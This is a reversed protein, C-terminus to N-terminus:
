TVENKWRALGVAVCEDLWKEFRRNVNEAPEAYTFEFPEAALPVVEGIITRGDDDPRKTYTMPACCLVGSSGHGMEHFSFLLETRVETELALASWARFGSMNAYYGLQRACQVIQHYNYHANADGSAAGYAFAKYAQDVTKVTDSIDHALDQLRSKATFQLATAVQLSQSILDNKEERRKELAIKLGDLIGQIRSSERLTEEGVSLAERIARRQLNGFMAILSSLDGDDATRLAAIYSPKDSRTIVLPLWRARLLVLTALCRAVRGNGDAFPHVLSFRHHLWAAEVLPSVLAKEHQFHFRLLSDMESEVQIPPCFEFFFGDPGEVNNPMMKWRGRPLEARVYRGLTDRAEHTQQHETLVQHLELIYSKTLQRQHSVFQYLGEIARYQDKIRAVVVDPPEDTDDHSLLAADLGKEILTKTAGDSIRYINEIAGTEVAFQRRLRKEFEHFSKRERLEAAQDLWTKVLAPVQPDILLEWNTPLDDIPRWRRAKPDPILLEISTMSSAVATTM